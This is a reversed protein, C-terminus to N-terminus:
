SLDDGTETGATEGPIEMPLAEINNQRNYEDIYEKVKEWDVESISIMLKKAAEYAANIVANVADLLVDSLVFSVEKMKNLLGDFGM